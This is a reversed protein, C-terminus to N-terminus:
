YKAKFLSSYFLNRLLRIDMELLTSVLNPIVKNAGKGRPCFHGLFIVIVSIGVSIIRSNDIVFYLLYNIAM